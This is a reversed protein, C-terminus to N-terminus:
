RALGWRWVPGTGICTINRSRQINPARSSQRAFMRGVPDDRMTHIKGGQQDDGVTFFGDAKALRERTPGVAVAYLPNARGKITAQVGTRRINRAMAAGTQM